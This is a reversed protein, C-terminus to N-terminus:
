FTAFFLNPLNRNKTLAVTNRHSQSAATGIFGLLQEQEAASLSLFRHQSCFLFNLYVSKRNTSVESTLDMRSYNWLKAFSSFQEDADKHKLNFQEPVWGRLSEGFFACEM